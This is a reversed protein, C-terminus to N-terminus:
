VEADGSDFISQLQRYCRQEQPSRVTVSQAAGSRAQEIKPVFKNELVEPEHDIGISLISECAPCTLTQESNPVAAGSLHVDARHLDRYARWASALLDAYSPEQGTKEWIRHQERKLEALVADNVKVPGKKAKLEIGQM